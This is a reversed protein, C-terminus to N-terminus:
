PTKWGRRTDIREWEAAWQALRRRELGLRACWVSGLVVGGAGAGALIGSAVSHLVVESEALPQSTVAGRRDTWVSVTTGAKTKPAVRAQDTHKTGDPATWRVTAWV